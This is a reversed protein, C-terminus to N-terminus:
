WCTLPPHGRLENNEDTAEDSLRTLLSPALPTQSQWGTRTQNGEATTPGPLLRTVLALTDALLAPFLARTIALGRAQISTTLEPDGHRCADLIQDAAHGADMSSFRQTGLITFLTYEERHRGKFLANPPSGTRMLGPCVTTIQINNKALEARLADSLGVLAFKSASYPALHPVAVLGGISAINVIRGEGQRRMYPIAAWMTHLPGRFHVAMADEFDALTMHELPGVQIVGANNILVDIRGYRGAAKSIAEEVQQQDRVDCPLFLVEAGCEALERRADELESADRALITLRAGEAALRRALLLGLGRSGGTIVVAKDAFSIKRGTRAMRRATAVTLGLGALTALRGVKM